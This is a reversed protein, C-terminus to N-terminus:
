HPLGVSPCTRCPCHERSRDPPSYYHLLEDHLEGVSRYPIFHEGEIFPNPMILAIPPSFLLARNALIEWFRGTDFGDGPYAVSIRSRALVNFYAAKRQSQASEAPGGDSVPGVLCHGIGLHRSRRLSLEARQRTLVCPAPFRLIRPRTPRASSTRRRPQLRCRACVLTSKALCRVSLACHM